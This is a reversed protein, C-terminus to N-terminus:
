NIATPQRVKYTNVAQTKPQQDAPTNRVLATDPHHPKHHTHQTCLLQDRARRNCLLLQKQMHQQAWACKTHELNSSGGWWPALQHNCLMWFAPHHTRITAGFHAPQPFILGRQQHQDGESRRVCPLLLPKTAETGSASSPDSMNMNTRPVGVAPTTCLAAPNHQKLAVTPATDRYLPHLYQTSYVAYAAPTPESPGCPGM